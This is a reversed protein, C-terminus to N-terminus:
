CWGMSKSFERSLFLIIQNSEETMISDVMDEDLFTIVNYGNQMFITFMDDLFNNFIRKKSFKQKIFEEFKEIEREVSVFLLM